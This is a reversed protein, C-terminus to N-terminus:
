KITTSKLILQRLYEGQSMGAAKAKTALMRRLAPSLKFLFQRTHILPKTNM